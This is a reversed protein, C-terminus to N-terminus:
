TLFCKNCANYSAARMIFPHVRGPGYFLTIHSSQLCSPDPAEMCAGGEDFITIDFMIVLTGSCVDRSVPFLRWVEGAPPTSADHCLRRVCGATQSPHHMPAHPRHAAYIRVGRPTSDACEHSPFSSYWLGTTFVNIRRSRGHM